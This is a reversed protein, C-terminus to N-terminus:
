PLQGGTVRKVLTGAELVEDPTRRNLRALEADDVTSPYAEAFERFTM